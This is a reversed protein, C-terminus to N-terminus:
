RRAILVCLNKMVTFGLDPHQQFIRDLEKQQFAIVQTKELCIATATLQFPEVLASWGFPDGKKTIMEYTIELGDALSTKLAVVGHDLLFLKEALTNQSFIISGPAYTELRALPALIKLGEPVVKKFLESQKLQLEAM